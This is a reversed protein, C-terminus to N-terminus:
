TDDMDIFLFLSWSLDVTWVSEGNYLHQKFIKKYLGYKWADALPKNGTNYLLCLLLLKHFLLVMMCKKFEIIQFESHPAGTVSSKDYNQSTTVERFM